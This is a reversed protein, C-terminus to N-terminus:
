DAMLPPFSALDKATSAVNLELLNDAAVKGSYSEYYGSELNSWALNIRCTAYIELFRGVLCSFLVFPM